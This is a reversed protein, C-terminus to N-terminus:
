WSVGAWLHAGNQSPAPVIWWTRSASRSPEATTRDASAEGAEDARPATLLLIIGLATLGLGAGVGVDAVLASTKAAHRLDVGQQTCLDNADCEDNSAGQKVFTNIGFGLGVGLGAIGVGGIVAGAIRQASGPDQEPGAAPQGSGQRAVALEPVDVSSAAPGVPIKTSQKWSERGPARAEIVHDGPDLPIPTGWVPRGIPKGDVRVEIGDVPTPVHVVLRSLRKDLRDLESRAYELRETEGSQKALTAARTLEDWASGTRGQKGHCTAMNLLTGLKAVLRYSEEFKPCAEDIKGADMLEKGNRFLAEALASDSSQASASAAGLLTALAAAGAVGAASAIWSSSRMRGRAM